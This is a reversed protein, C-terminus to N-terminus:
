YSYTEGSEWIYTFEKVPTGLSMDNGITVKELRVHYSEMRGKHYDIMNQSTLDKFEDMGEKETKFYSTGTMDTYHGNTHIIVWITM